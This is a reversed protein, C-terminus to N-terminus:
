KILSALSDPEDATHNIEAMKEAERSIIYM